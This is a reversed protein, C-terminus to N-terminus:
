GPPASELHAVIREYLELQVRRGDEDIEHFELDEDSMGALSNRRSELDALLEERPGQLLYRLREGGWDDKFVVVLSGPELRYQGDGDHPPHEDDWTPYELTAASPTEGSPSRAVFLVRIEALAELSNRPEQESLEVNRVAGLYVIAAGRRVAEIHNRINAARATSLSLLAALVGLLVVVTSTRNRM